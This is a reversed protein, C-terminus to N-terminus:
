KININRILSAIIKIYGIIVILLMWFIMENRNTKLEDFIASIEKANAGIFDGKLMKVFYALMWGAVTTYFMMLIYNGALAVYGHLHWKTKPPELPRYMKVPSKRSARGIAFEMTMVPVGIAILFIIYILVFIGGGYQGVIYPFKWVNGIGIACGASLMIFGLRSGLRERQM